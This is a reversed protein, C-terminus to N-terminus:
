AHVGMSQWGPCGNRHHRPLWRVHPPALQLGPAKGEGSAQTRRTYKRRRRVKRPRCRWCMRSAFACRPRRAAVLYIAGADFLRGPSRQRPYRGTSCRFRQAARLNQHMTACVAPVSGGEAMSPISPSEIRTRCSCRVTGGSSRFCGLDPAAPAVAPCYSDAAAPLMAFRPKLAPVNAISPRQIRVYQSAKNPVVRPFAHEGRRANPWM